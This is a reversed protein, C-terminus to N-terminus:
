HGDAEFVVYVGIVADDAGVARWGAILTPSFAASYPSPGPLWVCTKQHEVPTVKKSHAREITLM